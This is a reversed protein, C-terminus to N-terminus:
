AVKEELVPDTEDEVHEIRDMFGTQSSPEAMYYQCMSQLLGHGYLRVNLDTVKQVMEFFNTAYTLLVPSSIFMVGNCLVECCDQKKGAHKGAWQQVTEGESKFSCDMAFVSMDRYGMAYLLPISRLGVSGGGSVVHKPNEKLENIIRLAHEGTSVHWLKVAAGDAVLKTFYAEHVVSAIMYTVDPRFKEINDAKHPRPDCEIHYRPVIGHSLLFDHAGSVSIVDVDPRESERKLLDITEILSPGYCAILATREHAESLAIRDSFLQVAAEVNKWREDSAVAGIATIGQVMVGPAGIMVVYRGDVQWQAVRFRKELIRRWDWESQLDTIKVAVFTCKLSKAALAHLAADIDDLHEIIDCAAQLDAQEDDIAEFMRVSAIQSFADSNSNIEDRITDFHARMPSTMVRRGAPKICGTHKKAVLEAAVTSGREDWTLIQFFELLKARWWNGPKVLLHANRGDALTKVAPRTAITVFLRRRTLERLHRLVANLHVPEIHELVDTCVVLEAPDPEGDKGEIAPDYEAVICDANALTRKLNGKGCGYDLVTRYGNGSVLQLAFKSWGFNDNGFTPERRHLEKNQERYSESILPM